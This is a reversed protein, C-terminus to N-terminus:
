PLGHSISTNTILSVSPHHPWALLPYSSCSCSFTLPPTWPGAPLLVSCSSPGFGLSESVESLSSPFSTALPLRSIGDRWCTFCWLFSLNRWFHGTVCVASGSCLLNLSRSESLVKGLHYHILLRCRDWATVWDVGSELTLLWPASAGWAKGTCWRM